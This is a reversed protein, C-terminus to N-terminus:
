CEGYSTINFMNTFTHREYTFPLGSEPQLYYIDPTILTYVYSM